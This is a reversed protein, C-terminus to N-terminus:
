VVEAVYDEEGGGEAGDFCVVRVCGEGEEGTGGACFCCGEEGLDVVDDGALGEPLVEAGEGEIWLSFPLEDMLEGVVLEIGGEDEGAKFLARVRGGEDAM